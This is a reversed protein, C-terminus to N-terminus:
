RKRRCVCRVAPADSRQVCLTLPARGNSRVFYQYYQGARPVPGRMYLEADTGVVGNGLFCRWEGNSARGYDFSLCGATANCATACEVLHSPDQDDWVRPTPEMNHGRLAGNLACNFLERVDSERVCQTGDGNYGDMCVCEFGADKDVCDAKVHCNDAGLECENVQCSGDNFNALPSYNPADPLTCGAIKAVCSADPKTANHAFNLADQPWLGRSTLLLVLVLV